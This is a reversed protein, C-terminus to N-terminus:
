RVNEYFIYQPYKFLFMKKKLRYEPLRMTMKSKVDEVVTRGNQEYMFDCVYTIARQVKGTNDTFKEQLTFPVQRRLGRIQGAKELLSLEVAREMEKKSDYTVGNWTREDKASVNYKHRKEMTTRFIKPPTVKYTSKKM